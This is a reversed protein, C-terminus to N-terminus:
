RDRRLRADVDNPGQAAQPERRQDVVSRVGFVSELRSRVGFFLRGLMAAQGVRENRDREARDGFRVHPRELLREVVGASRNECVALGARSREAQVQDPLDEVAPHSSLVDDFESSGVAEVSTCSRCPELLVCRTAGFTIPKKSLRV